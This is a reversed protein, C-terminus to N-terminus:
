PALGANQGSTTPPQAAGSGREGGEGGVGGEGEGGEGGELAAQKALKHHSWWALPSSLLYAGAICALTLWLDKRVGVVILGIVVLLPVIVPRPLKLKKFSFMPIRSVMLVAIVITYAIVVYPELTWERKSVFLLVPILVASAAAPTPMGVFFQTHMAQGAPGLSTPVPAAATFRALRLASCLVFLMSALLGLWDQDKLMWQHLIIAPAVGFCLFDSLSDLVGGFSSTAKLFRAARGDLADFLAAAVIFLLADKWEGKLAAHVAALGCCLATTTIANPVLHKIPVHSRKSPYRIFV